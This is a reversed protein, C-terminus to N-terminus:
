PNSATSPLNTPRAQGSVAESIRSFVVKLPICAIIPGKLKNIVSKRKDESQRHGTLSSLKRIKKNLLGSKKKKSSKSRSFHSLKKTRKRGTVSNQKLVCTDGGEMDLGTSSLVSDCYGDDLVEVTLPHGIFAKGYLKSVLSVLPVHQPRYSSKVELKVDHLSGNSCYSRGPFDVMQYRSNITFRSQRYPLSRQPTVSGDSLVKVETAGRIHKSLDQFEELQGEAVPKCRGQSPAGIINQDVKQEAGQSLGDSKEIRALYASSEDDMDMPKRSIEKRNKSLHRSNRKGKSQWESSDKETSQDVSNHGAASSRYGINQSDNRLSMVESQSVHCSKQEVADIQPKGSSCSAPVASLGAAHKEDEPVRAFSVDFLKDSSDNKIIDSTENEKVADNIQSAECGHDSINLSTGNECARETSDSNHIELSFGQKPENSDLGSAKSDTVGCLPSSSSSPLQDCIRPASVIATSQLVKTLQRRRNKRRLLEHANTVQSRKRKVTSSHGKGGVVSTGNTLCNWTNSNNPLAGNQQAIEPRGAGLVKRKSVAGIGLDELGRMRKVGETGEDESDNPTRRRRRRQMSHMKSSGNQSPEEFSLGSQSLEPASNSNDESDSLDDDTVDEDGDGDGGGGGSHSIAPSGGALGGSGSCFNVPENGGLRASELELAHLIADERRAYKVAKKNSNAASAKAKEICEDYEGCRFAKVRKSKELNYWDVSADERGLLKVPTGSRPSVLCTQSLEHLGMIRGPWWSGNRRRVWVLGGESADIGNEGM